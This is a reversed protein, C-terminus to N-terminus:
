GVGAMLSVYPTDTKIKFDPKHEVATMATGITISHYIANYRREVGHKM